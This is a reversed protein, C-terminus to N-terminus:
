RYVLYTRGRAERVTVAARVRRHDDNTVPLGLKNLIRHVHKEVTSEALWLRRAIGANSRGEAILALVEYERRSLVDLM